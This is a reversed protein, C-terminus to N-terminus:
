DERIEEASVEKTAGKQSAAKQGQHTREALKTLWM